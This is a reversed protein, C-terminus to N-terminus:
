KHDIELDATIYFGTNELSPLLKECISFIWSSINHIKSGYHQECTFFLRNIRKM